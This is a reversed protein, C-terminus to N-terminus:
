GQKGSMPRIVITIALSVTSSFGTFRVSNRLGLGNWGDELPYLRCFDTIRCASYLDGMLSCCERRRSLSMKWGPSISWYQIVSSVASIGMLFPCGPVPPNFCIEIRGGSKRYRRIWRYITNESIRTRSSYPIIWKRACKERILRRKETASLMAGGVFEHIVGFRFVAIAKNKEETM